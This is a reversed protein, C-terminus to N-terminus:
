SQELKREDKPSLIGTIEDKTVGRKEKAVKAAAV